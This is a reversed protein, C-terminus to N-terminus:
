RIHPYHREIHRRLGLGWRIAVYLYILNAKFGGWAAVRRDSTIVVRNVLRIRGRRCLRLCLDADEMVTLTENCGGVALFDARRFFMAHDGFLLRGGRLFLHPRFILAAYWTKIWNHFTTGWRVTEPGAILPTFGALATRPDGLTRRIVTLADDPLITDAHLVCILPSRAEAIGRNIAAARGPVPHLVARVFGSARVLALTEDQSGGDVAIIEGPAPALVALLRLLRPMVAAENLMPIVIAVDDGAIAEVPMEGDVPAQQSM